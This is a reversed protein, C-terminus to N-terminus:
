FSGYYRKTQSEYFGNILEPRVKARRAILRSALAAGPDRPNLNRAQLVERAAARFQGRVDDLLALQLHAYWNKPERQLAREFSSRARPLDRRRLAISGEVVLPEASLPDLSAARELRSYAKSPNTRWVAAGADEYSTSLWVLAVAGGAAVLAVFGAAGVIVTRAGRRPAPAPPAPEAEDVAGALGLFGFAPAALAPIEWFWDVSSHLLWYAFVSLAAGAAGGAVADLRSRRRLGFAVAIGAAVALLATGIVGLQSLLRLPTSHPYRPQFRPTQRQRLYAAYYNDAGVGALPHGLFERWAIKWEEYRDNSLTGTFRSGQKTSPCTECTFDRWHASIWERPHDVRAAAVAVGAAAAVVAAAIVATGLVRVAPAPVRVRLDALAWVLGVAGAAICSVLVSRAAHDLPANLAAGAHGREYVDLLPRLVAVTATAVVALALLSRLRERALLLFVLAAFPLVFLWGRSQGLVALEVLLTAAALSASRLAAPLSRCHSLYLAPWLAITWLATTGDAYEVPSQLRSDNFYAAPNSALAARALVFVGIAAVGLAFLALLAIVSLRGWPWLAFIAFGTAYLLTKDSGIWADGPFDAWLLSLFNWVVFSALACFLVLRAGRRRDDPVRVFTLGTALLALLGLGPLGWATPDHGGGRAAWVLWVAVTLVGLPFAPTAATWGANTDAM